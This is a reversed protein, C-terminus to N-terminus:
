ITQIAKTSWQLVVLERGSRGMSWYKGVRVRRWQGAFTDDRFWDSNYFIKQLRNKQVILPFGTSQIQKINESNKWLTIWFLWRKKIYNWEFSQKEM